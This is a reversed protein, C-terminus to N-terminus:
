AELVYSRSIGNPIFVRFLSNENLTYSIKIVLIEGPDWHLPNILNTSELITVNIEERSFRYNGVFLDVRSPDVKISGTNRLHLKVNTNLEDYTVNVINFSTELRNVVNEHQAQLSNNTTNIYSNFVLSIVVLTVMISMFLIVQSIINGFGM